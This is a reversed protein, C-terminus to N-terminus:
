KLYDLLAYLAASYSYEKLGMIVGLCSPATVSVKRFDERNYLNSLHVELFPVNVCSIADGIAHSYHSYAAPNIIVGDYNGSANHIADIIEGESNSQFFEIETNNNEAIFSLRENIEKLTTKGYVDPEREGLLNLNAGNIVLIKSM